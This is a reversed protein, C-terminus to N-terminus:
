IDGKYYKNNKNVKNDSGVKNDSDYSNNAGTTNNTNFNNRRDEYSETNASQNGSRNGYGDQVKNGNGNNDLSPLDMYDGLGAGTVATLEGRRM